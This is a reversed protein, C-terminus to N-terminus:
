WWIMSNMVPKPEFFIPIRAYESAGDSPPWEFRKRSCDKLNEDSKLQQTCDSIDSYTLTGYTVNGFTYTSNRLALCKKLESVSIDYYQCSTGDYTDDIYGLYLEKESFHMPLTEWLTRSSMKRIKKLTWFTSSSGHRTPRSCEHMSVQWTSLFWFSVLTGMFWLECGHNIDWMDIGTPITLFTAPSGM